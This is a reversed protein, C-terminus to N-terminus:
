GQDTLVACALWGQRKMEDFIAGAIEKSFAATYHLSDVYLNEHRALQIDGLWLFGRQVDPDHRRIDMQGYFAKSQELISPGPLGWQILQQAFAHYSLDYHYTPSPQWVTLAKVGFKDAVADRMQKNATWRDLQNETDVRRGTANTVTPTEGTHGTRRFRAMVLEAARTMPLSAVLERARAYWRSPAKETNIVNVLYSLRETYQPDSGQWVSDNLGDVFVAVQPVVNSLLLQELLAREQTSIYGPRAFNYVHAMPACGSNRMHAELAAPITQADPLMTGFITSGGFVFVNFSAQDLPWPAAEGNSRFGNESVNTYVGQTPHVKFQTFPEYDFTIRTWEDYLQLLNSPDWGPYLTSVWAPGFRSELMTLSSPLRHQAREDIIRLVSGAIVNVLMFLLVVTCTQVALVTYGRWISRGLGRKPEHEVVLSESRRGGPRGSASLAEPQQKDPKAM